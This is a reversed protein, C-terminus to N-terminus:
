PHPDRARPNDHLALSADREHPDGQTETDAIDAIACNLLTAIQAMVEPQPNRKGREVRSLYAHSVGVANAFRRLGYGSLERRRRIASGDAQVYRRYMVVRLLAVRRGLPGHAPQALRRATPITEFPSIKDRM